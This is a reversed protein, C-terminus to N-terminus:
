SWSSLMAFFAVFAFDFDAALFGAALFVALFFVAFFFYTPPRKSAYDDILPV